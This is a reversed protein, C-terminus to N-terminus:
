GGKRRYQEVVASAMEIVKGQQWRPMTRVDEFVRQLEGRPASRNALPKMNDDVVIDELKVGFAKAMKPLIDSRPPKESWGRLALPRAGKKPRLGETIHSKEAGGSHVPPEYGM